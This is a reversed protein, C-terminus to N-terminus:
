GKNYRSISWEEKRQLVTKWEKFSIVSSRVGLAALIRHAIYRSLPWLYLLFIGFRQSARPFHTLILQNKARLLRVLKDSQIKESKGGYHVIKAEPTIMPTFGLRKFRLCLDADEGYMFFDSSFGGLTIWHEKKTLLFCGSVIDVHRANSRDWSGMGEPNFVSTKRLASTLGLAQCVLSWVTQRAFCSSPNLSGNDFITKGGWIGADPNCKAFKLLNNIASDLVVTDPNLLLFYEGRADKAAINNAAGFGVNKDLTILRVKNGLQQHIAQQSDDSSANDIVIIEFSLEGTNKLVSELCKTTYDRTNYSVVIISLEITNGM